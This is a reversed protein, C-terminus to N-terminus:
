NFQNGRRSVENCKKKCILRTVQFATLKMFSSWDGLLAKSGIKMIFSSFVFMCVIWFIIITVDVAGVACVMDHQESQARESCNTKNKDMRPNAKWRMQVCMSCMWKYRTRKTNHACFPRKGGFFFRFCFNDDNNWGFIFASWTTFTKTQRFICTCM